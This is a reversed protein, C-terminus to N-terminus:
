DTGDIKRAILEMYSGRRLWRALANVVVVGGYELRQRLTRHPLLTRGTYLECSLVEFGTTRLLRQLSAPTFGQVHYPAFTPSMQCVWGKGQLRFYWNGVVNYLSVENPADVWVVGGAKLLRAIERLMPAPEYLHEVVAGLTIADFSAAPLAASELSGNVVDVGYTAQAFRAFEQSTEVGLAGWGELRAAQLLEGRGCGVDLLRGKRGIARELQRLLNRGRELKHGPDHQAFYEDVSHYRSNTDRLIPMPQPYLHGCDRCRLIRSKLGLRSRHAEGGRFGLTRARRSGCVGCSLEIFDFVSPDSAALAADAM